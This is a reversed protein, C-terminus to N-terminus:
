HVNSPNGLTKEEGLQVNGARETETWLLSVGIGSDDEQGKAPSHGTHRQRGHVPFGLVPGWMGSLKMKETPICTIRASAVTTTVQQSYM